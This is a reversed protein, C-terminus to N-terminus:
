GPQRGQDMRWGVHALDVHCDVMFDLVTPTWPKRVTDDTCAFCREFAAGYRLAPVIPSLRGSGKSRRQPNATKFPNRTENRTSKYRSFKFRKATGAGSGAMM